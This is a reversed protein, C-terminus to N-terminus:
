IKLNESEDREETHPENSEETQEQLLQEEKTLIVGGDRRLVLTEAVRESNSLYFYWIGLIVAQITYIFWASTEWSSTLFQTILLFAGHMIALVSLQIKYLKLASTRRKILYILAHLSFIFLLLLYLKQSFVTLALAGSTQESFLGTFSVAENSFNIFQAIIAVIMVVQMITFLLLWGGISQRATKVWSEPAPDFKTLRKSLLLNFLFAAAIMILIYIVQYLGNKMEDANFAAVEKDKGKSRLLSSSLSKPKTLEYSIQALMKDHDRVFRNYDEAAVENTKTEYVQRVVVKRNNDFAKENYSYRYESAEILDTNPTVGWPSPLILIRNYIYRQPYALYLPASRSKDDSYSLVGRLQTNVFSARWTEEESLVWLSDIEYGERVRIINAERDDEVKLLGTSKIHPYTFAYYEEYDKTIVDVSNGLLYARMNDAEIGEFSSTVELKTPQSAGPESVTFEESVEIKGENVKKIEYLNKTGKAIILGKGYTPFSVELFQNGMNSITPDVFATDGKYSLVVVCHNFFFPSVEQEKLSGRLNTNVLMPAADVGIGNLLGVLLLSKDKCDGYRSEYVKVSSHPKFANIGNEFGLYRVDDQVFRSLRTIKEAMSEDGATMELAVSRLYEAEDRPITYWPLLKQNLKEWSNYNSVVVSQRGDYWSPENQYYDYRKTEEMVWRMETVNGTGILKPSPANNALFYQPMRNTPVLIRFLSLGIVSPKEFYESTFFHGKFLPNVGKRTFSYELIDGPRVDNLNFIVSLTSDYLLRDRSSEKRIEKPIQQDLVSIVETGRHVIIKHFFLQEYSPDYSVEINSLSSVAEPSELKFAYHYYNEETSFNVQRDYLLWQFGDVQWDSNEAPFAQKITWTPRASQYNTQAKVSTSFLFFSFSILLLRLM